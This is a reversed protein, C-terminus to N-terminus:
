KKITIISGYRFAQLSISQYSIKNGSKKNLSHALESLTTSRPNISINYYEYVKYLLDPTWQGQLITIMYQTTTYEHIYYTTGTSDYIVDNKDKEQVRKEELTTYLATMSTYFGTTNFFDHLLKRMMNRESYHIDNNTPDDYYNLKLNKCDKIIEEKKLSLLPRVTTITHDLFHPTYEQLWELWKKGCGRNINLFTTEIRDDLHHWLLLLKCDHQKCHEIFISHRWNRLSTEDDNSGEYKDTYFSNEQSYSKVLKIENQINERTNHDCSMIHLTSPELKKEKWRTQICYLLYISDSGWSVGITVVQEHPIYHEFIKKVKEYYLSHNM